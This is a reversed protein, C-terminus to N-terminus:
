RAVGFKQNAVVALPREYTGAFYEPDGDTPTMGVLARHGAGTDLSHVVSFGASECWDVLTRLTPVFWNSADSNLENGRYFLTVPEGVLGEAKADCTETESVAYETTLARLADLALLPHRLHYLVGLFLM